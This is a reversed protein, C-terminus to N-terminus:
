MEGEIIISANDIFGYYITNKCYLEFTVKNEKALYIVNFDEIKYGKKNLNKVFEGIAIISLRYITSYNKDVLKEIVESRTLDEKTRIKDVKKILEKSLSVTIREKNKSIM